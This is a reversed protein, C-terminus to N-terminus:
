RFAVQGSTIQYDFVRKLSKKRFWGSFVESPNHGVSGELLTSADLHNQLGDDSSLWGKIDKLKM